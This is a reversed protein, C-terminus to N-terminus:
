LKQNQIFLSKSIAEFFDQYQKQDTIPQVDMVSGKNDMVKQQVNIRVRTQQGFSSVNCTAEVVANNQYTADRGAFLTAIIAEGNNRVNLEKQATILGLDTNAQSIVFGEDQLASVLAQMVKKQDTTDFARTQYERTQLQSEQIGPGGPMACGGLALLLAFGAVPTAKM